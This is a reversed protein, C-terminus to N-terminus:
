AEYDKGMIGGYDKSIQSLNSSKYQTDPGM